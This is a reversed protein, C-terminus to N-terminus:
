NTELYRLFRVLDPPYQEGYYGVLGIMPFNVGPIFPSAIYFLM